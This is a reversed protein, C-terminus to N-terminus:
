ILDAEYLSLWEKVVIGGVVGNEMRQKNTETM